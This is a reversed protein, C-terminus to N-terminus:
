GAFTEGLVPELMLSEGIAGGLGDARRGSILGSVPREMRAAGHSATNAIAASHVRTRAPLGAAAL